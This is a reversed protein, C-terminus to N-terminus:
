KLVRVGAVAASMGAGFGVLLVVDGKQLRQQQGNEEWGRSITEGFANPITVSGCNGINEINNYVFIDKMGVKPLVFFKLAQTIRGNAQHPIILKPTEGIEEAVSNILPPLTNKDMAWEFVAPGDMTAHRQPDDSPAVGVFKLLTSEDCLERQIPGKILGSLEPFIRTKVSMIELDEGPVFALAAAGDCLLTRDLNTPNGYPSIYEAATFLVRKGNFAVENEKLYELAFIFSACEAIVDGYRYISWEPLRNKVFRSPSKRAHPTSTSFILLDIQGWKNQSLVERAPREAMLALREIRTVNSEEVTPIEDLPHVFHRLKIGTAKYIGEATVPGGKATKVELQNFQDAFAENDIHNEPFYCAAKVGDGPEIREKGETEQISAM